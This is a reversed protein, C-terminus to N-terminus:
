ADEAAVIGPDALTRHPGIRVPEPSGESAVKAGSRYGNSPAVSQTVPL